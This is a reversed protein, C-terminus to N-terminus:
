AEGDFPEIRIRTVPGTVEDLEALADLAANLEQERVVQTLIVVPVTESNESEKQIIAEISIGQQQLVASLKAMVGLKDLVPIKLYYGVEIQEIPLVDLSSGTQTSGLAPRVPSKVGALRDRALDILDAVVASATAEAGAGPGSYLTSGVFNGQVMVANGVGNVNALLSTSSVLTPHVRM